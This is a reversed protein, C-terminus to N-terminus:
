GQIEEKWHNREIEGTKNIWRHRFRDNMSIINVKALM